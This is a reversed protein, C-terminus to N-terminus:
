SLSALLFGLSQVIALMGPACADPPCAECAFASSQPSVYIPQMGEVCELVCAGSAAYRENQPAPPCAECATDASATCEGGAPAFMGPPCVTCKQCFADADETAARAFEGAECKLAAPTSVPRCLGFDDYYGDRCSTPCSLPDDVAGPGDFELNPDNAPTCAACQCGPATALATALEGLDQRQPFQGEPCTQPCEVCEDIQDRPTTTLPEFFGSENRCLFPCAAAGAGGEGAAAHRFFDATTDADIGSLATRLSPPTCATCAGSTSAAEWGPDCALACDAGFAAADATTVGNAPATCAETRSNASSTCDVFRYHTGAERLADLGLRLEELSACAKCVAGARYFDTKCQTQSCDGAVVFEENDAYLGRALPPCPACHTDATPTCAEVQEGVECDGGTLAGCASCIGTEADQWFAGARCEFACDSAASWQHRANFDAQTLGFPLECASCPADQDPLELLVDCGALHQGPPCSRSAAPDACAECERKAESWFFHPECERLPTLPALLVLLASDPHDPWECEAVPRPSDPAVEAGVWLRQSADALLTPLELTCEGASGEIGLTCGLEQAAFGTFFANGSVRIRYRCADFAHPSLATMRATAHLREWDGVDSGRLPSAGTGSAALQAPELGLAALEADTPVYVEAVLRPPAEEESTADSQLLRRRAGATTSPPLQRPTTEPTQLLRRRSSDSATPCDPEIKRILHMDLDAFYITNDYVTM